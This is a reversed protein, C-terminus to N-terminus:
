FFIILKRSIRLKTSIKCYFILPQHSLDRSLNIRKKASIGIGWFVWECFNQFIQMDSPVINGQLQSRQIANIEWIRAVGLVHPLHLTVHEQSSSSWVEMRVIEEVKEGEEVEEVEEVEEGENREEVM